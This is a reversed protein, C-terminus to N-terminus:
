DDVVIYFSWSCLTKDGLKMAWTEGFTGAEDPAELDLYFVYTGDPAVDVGLDWRDAGQHIEVGDIKGTLVFDIENGKWIESTVNKLEARMDADSQGPKLKVGQPKASIVKCANSSTTPSKTATATPVIVVPKPTSTATPPVETFTPTLSPALSIPQQNYVMDGSDMVLNLYLNEGQLIYTAVQSLQQLYDSDLSGEPCAMLTTPGLQITLSGDVLTYSGGFTNCDAQGELTGDALFRITYGSPNSV